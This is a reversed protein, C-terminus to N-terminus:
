KGVASIDNCRRKARIRWRNLRHQLGPEWDSSMSEPCHGPSHVSAGGKRSRRELRHWQSKKVQDEHVRNLASIGTRRNLRHSDTLGTSNIQNQM